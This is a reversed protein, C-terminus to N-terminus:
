NTCTTYLLVTYRYMFKYKYLSIDTLTDQKCSNDKERPRPTRQVIWHFQFIVQSLSINRQIIFNNTTFFSVHAKGTDPFSIQCKTTSSTGGPVPHLYRLRTTRSALLHRSDLCAMGDGEICCSYHMNGNWEMYLICKNIVVNSRSCLHSGKIVRELQINVEWAGVIQFHAQCVRLNSFTGAKIFWWFVRQKAWIHRCFPKTWSTGQLYDAHIIEMSWMEQTWNLVDREIYQTECWVPLCFSLGVPSCQWM